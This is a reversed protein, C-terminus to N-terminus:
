SFPIFAVSVTQVLRVAVMLKFCTIKALGRRAKMLGKMRGYFRLISLIAVVM